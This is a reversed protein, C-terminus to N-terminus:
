LQTDVGASGNDAASTSGCAKASTTFTDWASKKADRWNKQATARATRYDKWASQIATRREQVVTKGWAAKLAGQRTQLLSVISSGYTTMGAVLAAERTDVATAMCAVDVTKREMKAAPKTKEIALVPLASSGLVVTSLLFSSVFHKLM